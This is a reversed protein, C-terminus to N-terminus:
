GPVELATAAAEESRMGRRPCSNPWKAGTGAVARDVTIDTLTILSPPSPENRQDAGCAEAQLLAAVAQALRDPKPEDPQVPYAAATARLAGVIAARSSAPRPQRPLRIIRM